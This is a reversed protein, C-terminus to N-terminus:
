ASKNGSFLNVIFLLIVAGITSIILSGIWNSEEIGILSFLIGGVFGGAIGILINVIIGFGEGRRILGALWGAVGGIILSAILNIM